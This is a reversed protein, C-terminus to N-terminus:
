DPDVINAISSITSCHWVFIHSLADSHLVEGSHGSPQDSDFKTHLRWLIQPIFQEFHGPWLVLMAVVSM